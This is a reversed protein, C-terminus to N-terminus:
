VLNLEAVLQTATVIRIEHYVQLSVLDGDGSVIVDSESAAACAIVADDDPDRIVVPIAPAAAVIHALASYGHVLEKVSTSAVLLHKDFRRRSLVGELETLLAETTFLDVIGDRAADLIRRPNGKWFFGSIVTNTDATIRM